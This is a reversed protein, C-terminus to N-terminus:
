SPHDLNELAEAAEIMPLAVDAVQGLIAAVEEDSAGRDQAALALSYAVVQGSARLSEDAPRAGIMQAIEAPDLRSPM